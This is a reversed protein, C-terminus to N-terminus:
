EAFLVSHYAAACYVKLCVIIELSRVQEYAKLMVHLERKDKKLQDILAVSAARAAVAAVAAVNNDDAAATTSVAAHQQDNSTSSSSTHPHAATTSTSPANSRDPLSPAQQHQTFTTLLLVFL